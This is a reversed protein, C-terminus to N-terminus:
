SKVVGTIPAAITGTILHVGIHSKMYPTNTSQRRRFDSDPLNYFAKLM